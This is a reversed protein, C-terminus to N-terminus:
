IYNLKEKCICVSVYLCTTKLILLYINVNGQILDGRSILTCMYADHSFVDHRILESFLHVLNTFQTKSQSSTNDLVPADMDLFKMLLSQFIPLVPPSGNSCTSDKDDNDNTEGTAESQRKELLKAVAMARHEGWREASVAWECLIEVVASDQQPNYETKIDRENCSDKLSSTFIKAYLTDLSNSADMRDFSHRDLADLAALVKTTTTGASSQQWKDCSWRGEAAQSRARINEQAIRLQKMTPNNSSAPPCPLAAPPCPLYDLPSGNLVSPAKGEGVSNWVLATSCEM